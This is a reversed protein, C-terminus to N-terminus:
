RRYGVPHEILGYLERLVTMGLYGVAALGALVAGEGARGDGFMWACAVFSMALTGYRAVKEAARPTPGLVRLKRWTLLLFAVIVALPLLVAGPRVWDPWLGGQGRNRSWAMAGLIISWCAWGVAAAVWARSSIAPIKRALQHGAGTLFVALSFVLWVPWLFDLRPNPVLMLAGYILGYAVLGFAPVFRAAGNFVLIAGALVLTLLVGTPGSILAGLVALMLSWAVLAVATELSAQGSALPRDPRLLRDRRLDLIDNVCTGFGFLGLANVTAGALQLWLSGLVMDANASEEPHARSWLVVFWANAVVAFATTVRTLRLIPSLRELLPKMRPM